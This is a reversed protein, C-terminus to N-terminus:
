SDLGPVKPDAETASQLIGEFFDERSLQLKRGFSLRSDLSDWVRECLGHLTEM